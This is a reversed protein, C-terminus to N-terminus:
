YLSLRLPYHRETSLDPSFRKRERRIQFGQAILRGRQVPHPFSDPFTREDGFPCRKKLITLDIDQWNRACPPLPGSFVTQARNRFAEHCDLWVHAREETSESFSLLFHHSSIRCTLRTTKIRWSQQSCGTNGRQRWHIKKADETHSSRDSKRQLQSKYCGWLFRLLSAPYDKSSKPRGLSHHSYAAQKVKCDEWQIHEKQTLFVLIHEVAPPPFANRRPDKRGKSGAEGRGRTEGDSEREAGGPPNLCLHQPGAEGAKVSRLLHYQLTSM